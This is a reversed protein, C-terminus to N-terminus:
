STFHVKLTAVTEQKGRSLEGIRSKQEKIMATLESVLSTARQEKKVAAVSTERCSQVEGVVQQHSTQLEQYRSAEIKLAMRFEDELDRYAKEKEILKQKQQELMLELKSCERGVERRVLEDM